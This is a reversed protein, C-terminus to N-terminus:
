ATPPSSPASSIFTTPESGNAPNHNGKPQTTRKQKAVKKNPPM